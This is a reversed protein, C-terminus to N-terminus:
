RICSLICSLLRRRTQTATNSFNWQHNDSLNKHVITFPVNIHNMNGSLLKFFSSCSFSFFRRQILIYVLFLKFLSLNILNCVRWMTLTICHTFFSYVICNREKIPSNLNNKSSAALKLKFLCHSNDKIRKFIMHFFYDILSM